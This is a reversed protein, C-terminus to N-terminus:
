TCVETILNRITLNNLKQALPQSIDQGVYLHLSTNYIIGLLFFIEPVDIGILQSYNLKKKTGNIDLFKDKEAQGKILKYVKMEIVKRLAFCVAIPDYKEQGNIYKTMERYIKNLFKQSNGWSKNLGLTEFDTSIDIQNPHFHFFYKDVNAKILPNERNYILNLIRQSAKAQQEKLYRIKLKHKNFCFHNFYNPDLHTMVIPFFNRNQSQMEEIMNTIFYQFSVLNADDLYDFVEDIILICNEKQFSSRSKMMLTVFSLIDRQGNSMQHAKPWNVMLGKKKDEKPVIRFRTTNFDSIMRTIEDKYESYYIYNCAKRYQTKGTKHYTSIIQIAVLNCEFDTSANAFGFSKVIDRLKIFEDCDLISEIPNDNVQRKISESTGSLQNISTKYDSIYKGIKVQGFKDLNIEHAILRQVQPNYLINEIRELLKGNSGFDKKEASISYNFHVKNPIRPVFITPEIELSSRTITRGGYRQSTAKSVVQSNIVFVDFVDNITNQTDNAILTQETGNETITIKLEPRNSDNNEFYSKEDLEIKKPKLSDFGIGISSKGFGNPAVFISPKNPILNLPFIENQIGKINTLEIEKINM